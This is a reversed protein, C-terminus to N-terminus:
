EAGGPEDPLERRRAELVALVIVGAAWAYYALAVARGVVPAVTAGALAFGLRLALEGVVLPVIAVCALDFDAGLSRRRGALATVVAGAAFLFLLPPTVMSALRALLAQLGGGVDGGAITWGAAVVDRTRLAVFGLVLVLAADGPTRGPLRSATALADRPAIVAAGIRDIM